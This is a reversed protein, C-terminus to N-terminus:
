NNVVMCKNPLFFLVGGHGSDLNPRTNWTGTRARQHGSALRGHGAPDRMRRRHEGGRGVTDAHSIDVAVDEEIKGAADPHHVDAVGVRVDDVRQVPLRIAEGVGGERHRRVLAVDRQRLPERRQRGSREGLLGQEHVAAGLRDLVCDLDRAVRGPTWAHQADFVAEVAARQQRQREGALHM